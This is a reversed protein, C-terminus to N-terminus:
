LRSIYIYTMFVENRVTIVLLYPELPNFAYEDFVEQFIDKSLSKRNSDATIDVTRLFKEKEGLTNGKKDLIAIQVVGTFGEEFFLSDSASTIPNSSLRVNGCIPECDTRVVFWKKELSDLVNGLSPYNIKAWNNEATIKYRVINVTDNLLIGASWTSDNLRYAEARQLMMTDTNYGYWVIVNHLSDNECITESKFEIRLTDDTRKKAYCNEDDDFKQWEESLEVKPMYLVSSNISDARNEDLSLHVNASTKCTDAIDNLCFDMYYRNELSKTIPIYVSDPNFAGDTNGANSYIFRGHTGSTIDQFGDISNYIVFTQFGKERLLSFIDSQTLDNNANEYDEQLKSGKNDENGLLVIVKQSEDNYSLKEKTLFKLVSYCYTTGCNIPLSDHLGFENEFDKIIWNATIPITGNKGPFLLSAGRVIFKRKLRSNLSDISQKLAAHYKEMSCSCDIAYIIDVQNCSTDRRISKCNGVAVGDVTLRFRDINSNLSDLAYKLYDYPSSPGILSFSITGEKDNKWTVGHVYVNSVSDFSLEAVPNNGNNSDGAYGYDVKVTTDKGAETQYSPIKSPGKKPPKQSYRCVTIDYLDWGNGNYSDNSDFVFVFQVQYGAYWYLDIYEESREKVGSANYIIDNDGNRFRIYIKAIDYYSETHLQADLKLYLNERQNPLQIFPSAISYHSNIDYEGTTMTGNEIHFGNREWGEMDEPTAEFVVDNCMIEDSQLGAYELFQGQPIIESNLDEAKLTICNIVGWLFFLVSIFLRNRYM